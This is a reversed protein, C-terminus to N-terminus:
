DCYLEPTVSDPRYLFRFGGGYWNSTYRAEAGDLCTYYYVFIAKFYSTSDPPTQVRSTHSYACQSQIGLDESIVTVTNRGSGFSYRCTPRPEYNTPGIPVDGFLEQFAHASGCTLASFLLITAACKFRM